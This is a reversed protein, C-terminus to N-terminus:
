LGLSRRLHQFHSPQLHPLIESGIQSLQNSEFNQEKRRICSLNCHFYVNGIKSRAQGQYTWERLMKSVIVLDNPPDPIRDQQRLPNGCGFCMSTQTPCFQLLYIVFQGPIPNPFAVRQIPQPEPGISTSARSHDFQSFSYRTQQPHPMTNPQVVLSLATSTVTQQRQLQSFSSTNSSQQFTSVSSRLGSSKPHQFGSSQPHRLLSSEPQHFESFQPQHFESSRPQQFCSPQPQQLRFSQTHQLRPSQQQQSGLSQPHQLRSFQPHQLASSQQQQRLGSSQQQQFGSSQQQQLGSSQHLQQLGSSQQQQFGSSQQQQIGSSQQQQFGSSQQQQLGSSQQQQLGSSQQQQLGSSQQQRLGSSQQQQLGSSQQQQLRTSQPHQLISSTSQPRQSLRPLITTITEGVRRSKKRPARNGKKGRGQPMGFTIAKSLNVGDSRRQSSVFWRVYEAMTKEKINVALTHKCIKQSAYAPCNSDCKTMGNPFVNVVHPMRVNSQSAVIYTGSAQAIVQGDEDVLSQAKTVMSSLLDRAIWDVGADIRDNVVPSTGSRVFSTLIERSSRSCHDVPVSHAQELANRRQDERMKVWREPPVELFRFEERFKFEGKGIIALEIEQNQNNILKALSTCFSFEDISKKGNNENRVFEQIVRNTQESRNTTFREPPCGLGARQRVSQIASDLFEKAKRSCFWDYFAAGNDHKNSWREKVNDLMNLFQQEDPASVLGSEHVTGITKGFIDAMFERKVEGAIGLDKLKTEINKKLHLECLLHVSREFNNKFGNVLALEDDTGFALVDRLATEITKLTSAFISYTEFTKKEHLLVPGIISPHTGDRRNELLLHEYTIPTVNFNGIDFTPDVTFPRFEAPNCCFRKLDNVQRNTTMVCLPEPAVRVDRIFATKANAAQKKCAGLLRFWPDDTVNGPSLSKVLGTKTASKRLDKVQQRGRPIQGVSSCAAIGGIDDKVVKHVTERPQLCKSANRVCEKTSEWTRIHHQAGSNAKSNGHPKPKLPREVGNKFSYQVFAYRFPVGDPAAFIIM